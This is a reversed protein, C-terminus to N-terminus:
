SLGSPQEERSDYGLPHLQVASMVICADDSAACQMPLVLWSKLQLACKHNPNAAVSYTWGIRGPLDLKNTVLDDQAVTSADVLTLPAEDVTRFPRWVQLGNSCATLPSAPWAANPQSAHQM